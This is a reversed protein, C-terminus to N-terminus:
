SQLKTRLSIQKLVEISLAVIMSGIAIMIWDSATLAVTGLLNQIPEFYVAVLQMLLGIGVGITLYHNDFIKTKWIPKEFNRIVFVSVLTNVGLYAFALTNAYKATHGLMISLYYLGFVLIGSVTSVVAVLLKAKSDFLDHINQKSRELTLTVKDFALAMAPFSDTALNIWLIQVATIPLPLGFVISTAVVIVEDLSDSLLYKMVRKIREFISKGEEIGAIVTKFQNDLLVMDATEKSVESASNVVIGVDAKKLAPADNIGDGMMAVVEGQDKLIEVVKLKDEPAFRAFLATNKVIKCQQVDELARFEEGTIATIHEDINLRKIVYKATELYDGTIVCLRIDLEKLRKIDSKISDRIPDDMVVIGNYQWTKTEVLKGLLSEYDTEFHYKTKYTATAVIRYGESAINQIEDKINELRENSLECMEWVTEPAGRLVCIAENKLKSCSASYKKRSDFPITVLRKHGALKIKTEGWSAIALELPDSLDNALIGAEAMIKEDGIAKIVKLEGTTLTGTKDACLVTVKGLSEAVLLKRVLAKRKLLKQMGISLIVTLTIALGEPIASVSVAVAVMFVDQMNMGYALGVIFLITALVVVAISIKKAFKGLEIQLKTATRQTTHLSDAIKGIKTQMGVQEIQIQALGTVVSTGMYVKNDQTSNKEIPMSEGTLMAENVTFASASIVTADGPIKDGAKLFCIDGVVVDKLEINRRKGDREVEVPIKIVKELAMLSKEARYEQYFGLAVNLVVAGWVVIADTLGHLFYNITGAIILVVVVPSSVQSLLLKAVSFRSNQAIVNEGNKTRSRIVEESSLGRLNYM